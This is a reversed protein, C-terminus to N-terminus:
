WHHDKEYGTSILIDGFREKFEAKIKDTFYNQWDGAIGKRFHSRVDEEGRKRGARAEFSNAAIVDKLRSDDVDIQCHKIINQFQGLEDMILDEYRVIFEGTDIWSSQIAVSVDLLSLAHILGNETDTEALVQRNKVIRDYELGSQSTLTHSVRVSFYLSIFTDRLDRIIVFKIHNDPVEVCEFDQRPIYLTPYIMGPIIPDQRFHSVKFRPPVIRDPAIDQLVQYVWQSGAKHHTIHFITPLNSFRSM